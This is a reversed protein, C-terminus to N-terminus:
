RPRWSTAHPCAAPRSRRSSSRTRRFESSSPAPSSRGRSLPRCSTQLRKIAVQRGMKKDTALYVTGSGGRGIEKKIDYDDVEASESEVEEDGMINKMVCSRCLRSQSGSVKSLPRGCIPCTDRDSSAQMM